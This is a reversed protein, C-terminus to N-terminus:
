LSAVEKDIRTNTESIMGRAQEDMVYFTKEGETTM